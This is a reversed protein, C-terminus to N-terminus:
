RSAIDIVLRSQTIGHLHTCIETKFITSLVLDIDGQVHLVLWDDRLSSVSAKTISALPAKRELKIQALKKEMVTVLIYVAKSSIILIRPSPKSSRLPRPILVQIKASFIATEDSAMGAASRLAAGPAHNIDLYDGHFRRMSLLSFRRREKRSGLLSHSSDRIRLQVLQDKNKRFCRQIKAACANRYELLRRWARQIRAAMNHWYKDRLSELSWLQPILINM